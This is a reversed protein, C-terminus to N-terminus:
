TGKFMSVLTTVGTVYGKDSKRVIFIIIELNSTSISLTKDQLLWGQLSETFCNQSYRPCLFSLRLKISFMKMVIKYPNVRDRKNKVAQVLGM